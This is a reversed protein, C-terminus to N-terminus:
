INKLQLEKSDNSKDTNLTSFTFVIVWINSRQVFNFCNVWALSVWESSFISNMNLLHKLKSVIFILLKSILDTVEIFLINLSQELNFEIVRGSDPVVEKILIPEINWDQEAKFIISKDLNSVDETNYIFSKNWSQIERLGIVKDLKLVSFTMLISDINSFQM